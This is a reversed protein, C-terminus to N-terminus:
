IFTSNRTRANSLRVQCKSHQIDDDEPVPQCKLFAVTGHVHVYLNSGNIRKCGTHPVETLYSVIGAQPAAM